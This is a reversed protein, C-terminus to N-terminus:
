LAVSSMALIEATQVDLAKLVLRKQAGLVNISGTIVVTAGLFKGISLASDDDVHGSMQFNQEALVKDIDKRDIITFARANVFTLTLEDIYFGGEAPDTSAINIIALRARAPIDKNLNAFSETLANQNFRGSSVAEDQKVFTFRVQPANVAPRGLINFATNNNVFTAVSNWDINNQYAIKANRFTANLKFISGDWFWTGTTEQEANDNSMRVTCRNGAALTIEYTDFSGSHNVTAVWTGIFDSAHLTTLGAFIIALLFAKRKM